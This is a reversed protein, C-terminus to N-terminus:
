RRGGRQRLFAAWFVGYGMLAGVCNLLIDDVDFAGFATFLQFLEICCVLVFSDLFLVWWRRSERQLCPVLFGFPVFALVNGFLNEFSNLRGWYRIYMRITKFLTFNASDLGEWFVERTWSRAIAELREFPYKFVIVRLLVLMYVFFVAWLIRRAKRGSEDETFLGHKLNEWIKM